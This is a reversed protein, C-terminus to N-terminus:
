EASIATMPRILDEISVIGVPRGRSEVIGTAAGASRLARLADLLRTDASFRVAGAVLERVTVGQPRDSATRLAVATVVGLAHGRRDVVPLRRHSSQRLSRLAEAPSQESQVRRVAQWPTMQQAVTGDRFVAARDLLETQAPSLLGEGEAEAILGRIRETPSTEIDAAGLARQLTRMLLLVLPVLGLGTLIWRVLAMLASMPYMLTNARTRFVEKPLTEAFIFLIPTLVAVNILTIAWAPLATANLLAALAITGLYNSINNMILLTALAREPHRLERALRQAARDPKPGALRAQLGLRSVVYSGTELGSWVASDVIGLVAVCLWFITEGTSM